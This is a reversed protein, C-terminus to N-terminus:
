RLFLQTVDSYLLTSKNEFQSFGWRVWGGM